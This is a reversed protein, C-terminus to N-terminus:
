EIQCIKERLHLIFSPATSLEDIGINVFEETLTLDAALEGCIGVWIGHEHANKVTIKILELVAPHHPDFFSNLKENQRDLALTYQSLDNTGISFFDVEKALQGSVLAAAPTEIMIGLLTDQGLRYGENILENKVENVIIKIRRIEDVSIIMPFMIAMKGFASARYMARLQTEFIEPRELCLRIARLGLAPNEEKDLNFYDAQKDAGIDLTRFIVLKGGMAEVVTKYAAFQQEETPYTNNELYLFESRFLGIGEADNALVMGIDSVNGINAYTLILKGSKTIAPKGKYKELLENRIKQNKQNEKIISLTEDDPKVHVLGTSGNVAAYMGDFDDSLSSGLGIIAPIGMTRALIATHSSSSGNRTLFALIKEKDLQVTESPTLDDAFLIVPVDFKMDLKLCETGYPWVCLNDILRESIDKIDIARGKMYQDDMGEFIKVYNDATVAVAYEANVQQTSIINTISNVYDEDMLMMQHTEFLFASEKGAQSCAKEYLKSLQEISKKNAESYRHIEIEIDNIHKRIIQKKEKKLKYLMGTTIGNSVGTGSLVYM